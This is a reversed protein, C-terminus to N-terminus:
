GGFPTGAGKEAYGALSALFHQWGDAVTDGSLGTHRFTLECAGPEHDALEFSLRTGTWEDGRTHAVCEWGVEAPRRSAIVRMVMREPLGDFGFCLEEGRAASGTVWTTWWHRPGDVTGIADWVHERAAAIVLRREYGPPTM